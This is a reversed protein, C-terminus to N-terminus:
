YPALRKMQKSCKQHSIQIEYLHLSILTILHKGTNLCSFLYEKKYGLCQKKEWSEM